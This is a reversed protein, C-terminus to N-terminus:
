QDTMGYGALVTAVQEERQYRPNSLYANLDGVLLKRMGKPGCELAQRIRKTRPLNNHLVYAGVGYWHKRGSTIIFSVMNPVFNQVREVGWGENDRWVVVIGM